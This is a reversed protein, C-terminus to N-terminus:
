RGVCAALVDGTDVHRRACAQIEADRQSSATSASTMAIYGVGLAIITLLLMAFLTLPKTM